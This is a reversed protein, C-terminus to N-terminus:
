VEVFLGLLILAWWLIGFVVLVIQRQNFGEREIVRYEESQLMAYNLANFPPILFVFALISIIWMPDPLSSLLNFLVFAIFLAASSYNKTYGKSQAFSQIREFLGYLFFISFIARMAPMIDLNDKEQFFKWSKYMWWVGYLGLTLLFLFIFNNIALIEREEQEVFGSDLLDHDEM